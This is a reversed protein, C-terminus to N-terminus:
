IEDKERLETHSVIQKSSLSVTSFRQIKVIWLFKLARSTRFTNNIRGAQQFEKQHVQLEQTLM